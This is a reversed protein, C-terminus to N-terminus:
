QQTITWESQNSSNETSQQQGARRGHYAKPQVAKYRGSYVREPLNSLNTSELGAERRMGQSFLAELRLTTSNGYKVRQIGGLLGSM